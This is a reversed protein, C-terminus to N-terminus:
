LLIAFLYAKLQHCELAYSGILKIIMQIFM